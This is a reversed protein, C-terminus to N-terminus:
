AGGKVIFVSAGARRLAEHTKEQIPSVVGGKAKIEYFYALGGQIVLVDPIGSYWKDSLKVVFAKPFDSKMKKLFKKQISLESASHRYVKKNM